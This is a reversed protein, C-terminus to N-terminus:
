QGAEAPHPAPNDSRQRHGPLPGRETRTLELTVKLDEWRQRYVLGSDDCWLTAALRHDPGEEEVRSLLAAGLNTILEEEGTCRFGIQNLRPNLGSADTGLMPISFRRGARIGSPLLGIV